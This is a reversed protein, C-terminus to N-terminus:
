RRADSPTIAAVYRDVADKWAPMRRGTLHMYWRDDLVSYAPRPAPRGLTATDIPEISADLGAREIAYQALEFWTCDGASACHITGRHGGEALAVLGESLDHTWTPSGRQDNVVTLSEGTRARALITDIFNPGGRGYLWSTRVILHNPNVERVAIEGALKSAGYVSKPGVPDYERYPRTSRGDFVYDTSITLVAAGAEAAAAAVNRAGLANVLFAEEENSECDDVRTYAALNFIWDPEFAKVPHRVADLMTIDLEERSMGLVEHGAAKLARRASRALMGRSGTVFVKM